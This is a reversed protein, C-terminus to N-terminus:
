AEPFNDEKGFLALITKWLEVTSDDMNELVRPLEKKNYFVWGDRIGSLKNMLTEKSFSYAKKNLLMCLTEALTLATMCEYVHVKIKDDTWHYQPRVAFHEPRKSTRFLREVCEQDVYVNLIRNTEWDIHSTCTLKKGFYKRIYAKEKETDITYSASFSGDKNMVVQINIFEALSKRAAFCENEILRRMVSVPNWVPIEKETKQRGKKKKGSTEYEEKEKQVAMNYATVEDLTKVYDNYAKKLKVQFSAHSNNLREPVEKFHEIFKDKAKDLEAKEGNFLEQSFTLIGTGVVGSFELNDIRYALRSSGNELEIMTYKDLDIDYLEKMGELSHACIFHFELISFNEKSNSGGDFTVTIDKPQLKIRQIFANVQLVFDAFESKDNKNGEYLDWILPVQLEPCTITALSFQRLDDRKQKNHGRFCITCHLNHSSIWTYFNTYDLHLNKIDIEFLSLLRSILLDHATRIQEDVIGDMAEWIDQPTIQQYDNGLHYPLSTGKVWDSFDSMSGPSDARHIIELVLIHSRAFGKITKPPFCQDMISELGVYEALWYLAMVSGHTYCKFSWKKPLQELSNVQSSDPPSPDTRKTYEDLARELVKELPGIYELIKERPQKNPGTRVSTVIYYYDNGKKKKSRIRPKM